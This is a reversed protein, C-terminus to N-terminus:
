APGGANASASGNGKLVKRISVLAREIFPHKPPRIVRARGDIIDQALENLTKIEAQMGSRDVFMCTSTLPSLWSLKIRRSVGGPEATLEFWTGLKTKRLRNIV